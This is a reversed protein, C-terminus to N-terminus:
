KARVVKTGAIYDHMCRRSKGFIFLTDVIPILRGVSGLFGGLSMTWHRLIAIKWLPPKHGNMDVIKIGVVRKGISQGYKNWLYGNALIMAIFGYVNIILLLQAAVVSQQLENWFYWFIPLMLVTGIVADVLAAKLRDGRSALQSESDALLPALPSAPPTHTNKEDVPKDALMCDNKPSATTNM